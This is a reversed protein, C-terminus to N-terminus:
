TLEGSPIKIILWMFAMTEPDNELGGLKECGKEPPSVAWSPGKTWAKSLKKQLKRERQGGSRAQRPPM